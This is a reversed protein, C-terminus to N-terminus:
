YGNLGPSVLSLLGRFLSWSQVLGGKKSCCCLEHPLKPAGAPDGDDSKIRSHRMHELIIGLILEFAYRQTQPPSDHGHGGHSISIHRGLCIHAHKNPRETSKSTHQGDSKRNRNNDGVERHEIRM